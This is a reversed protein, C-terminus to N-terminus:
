DRVQDRFCCFSCLIEVICISDRFEKIQARVDDFRCVFSLVAALEDAILLVLLELYGSIQPSVIALM